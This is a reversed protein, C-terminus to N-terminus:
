LMSKVGVRLAQRLLTEAADDESGRAARETVPWHLLELLHAERGQPLQAMAYQM